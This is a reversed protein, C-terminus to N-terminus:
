RADATRRRARSKQGPARESFLMEVMTDKDEARKEIAAKVTRLREVFDRMPGSLGLRTVTEPTIEVDVVWTVKRGRNKEVRGITSLILEIEDAGDKKTIVHNELMRQIMLRINEFIDGIVDNKRYLESLTQYIHYDNGGYGYQFKPTMQGSPSREIRYSAGSVFRRFVNAGEGDSDAVETLLLDVNPIAWERDVKDRAMEFLMSMVQDEARRAIKELMPRLQPGYYAALFVACFYEQFSRHVFVTYIGDRQLMCVCEYLDRRVDDVRPTIGVYKLARRLLQRLEEDTFSFRQDLYSSACFASLFSRFDDIPLNAYTKRIFQSKQADHRRFLASFAQEYFIHMKNPIEAFQEYTLLMISSLLPSSLFSTHSQYLNRDVETKFRRKLDEDYNIKDILELVQTKMLPCVKFTYFNEWSAFKEDPRSSIVIITDPYKISIDLIQQSITDRHTFDIEDFGDLILLLGGARLALEFQDYTVNNAATACSQHIYALLNKSTLTNLQRLEVFLPIIGHSNEFRCITLYKMFMSKGCGALGTVVLLRYSALNTILADDTLNQERCELYLHVYVDLLALPRDQSLLTKVSRCREYSTRLYPAFGIQLSAITKDVLSKTLASTARRITPAVADLAKKVVPAAATLVDPPVLDTM